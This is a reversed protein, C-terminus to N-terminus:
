SDRPALTSGFGDLEEATGIIAPSDQTWFQSGVATLGTDTGYIVHAAGASGSGGVRQGPVGLALDSQPGNGFDGAALASGFGTSDPDFFGLNGQTWLQNGVATLGGSSGYIVHVAGLAEFDVSEFPVGVALDAHASNGFDGAALAFGLFDSIEGDEPIGASEQTWIQDGAATLGTSSGYIVNVAGEEDVVVDEEHVGVALDAHPSNGFDGAALASGFLDPTEAADAIGPSDQTWRQNGAATLGGSSGYIVNVAGAREVAGVDEFPVGVALDALPSKGFDASALASGFSDGREATGVVGSSNQTWRQNGPATLGGSSGYIVNVAGASEVAGVAESPVGVALDAFGDGDFDGTALASGFSDGREATGVVGSSNQTWRQNGAATLGGSSGYIVNVAGASEVAGVAESPVGVALDAFGDGDFDALTSSGGSTSAAGRVPTVAWSSTALGLLLVVLTRRM